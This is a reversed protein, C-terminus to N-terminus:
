LRLIVPRLRHLKAALMADTSLSTRRIIQVPEPWAIMLAAPASAGIVARAQVAAVFRAARSAVLKANVDHARSRDPAVSLISKAQALFPGALTAILITSGIAARM